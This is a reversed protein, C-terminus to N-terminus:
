EKIFRVGCSPCYDPKKGDEDNGKCALAGIMDFAAGCSGCVWWGKTPGDGLAVEGRAEKIGAQANWAAIFGDSWIDDALRASCEKSAMM